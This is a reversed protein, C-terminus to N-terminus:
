TSVFRAGYLADFPPISASTRDAAMSSAQCPIRTFATAGLMTLVRAANTIPRNLYHGPSDPAPASSGIQQDVRSRPQPRTERKLRLRGEHGALREHEIATQGKPISIGKGVSCCRAWPFSFPHLDPHWFYEISLRHENKASPRILATPVTFTAACVSGNPGTGIM